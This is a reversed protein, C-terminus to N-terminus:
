RAGGILAVGSNAIAGQALALAALLRAKVAGDPLADVIATLARQVAALADQYATPTAHGSITAARVSENFAKGAKLLQVIPGNVRAHQDATILGSKALERELDDVAAIAAHVDTVVISARAPDVRPIQPASACATMGAFVVLLLVAGAGSMFRSRDVTEVKPQATFQRMRYATYLGAVWGLAEFWQHYPQLLAPLADTHGAVATGVFLAFMVIMHLQARLQDLVHPWDIRNM